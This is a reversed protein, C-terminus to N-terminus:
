PRTRGPKEALPVFGAAVLRQRAEPGGLMAMFQAAPASSHARELLAASYTITPQEPLPIELLIESKKAYRTDSTYIVAADAHGEEVAVLTARAHETSILRAQLPQLIAKAELWERAYAGLPVATSPLAFRELAPTLLDEPGAIRTGFRPRAVIVLRNGVLPFYAGAPVFGREALDLIWREDASIFIDIPAGLRIQRALTGSAGFTTRIEIEPHGLAFVETLEQIPERLSAAAAVIIEEAPSFRAPSTLLVLAILTARLSM